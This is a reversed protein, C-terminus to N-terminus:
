GFLDPQGEEDTADEEESGAGAAVERSGAAVPEDGGGEPGGSGAVARTVEVVRDGEALKM